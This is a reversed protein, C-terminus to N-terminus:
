RDGSWNSCCFNDVNTAQPHGNKRPLVVAPRPWEASAGTPENEPKTELTNFVVEAVQENKISRPAGPRWEDYLGEIGSELFRKRWKGITVASLGLTASIATNPWGDAALLIIEARRVLGHPLSRSNRYSALQQRTEDTLELLALPRGHAM